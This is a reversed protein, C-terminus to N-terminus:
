VDTGVGFQSKMWRVFHCQCSEESWLLWYSGPGDLMWPFPALLSGQARLDAFLLPSLLAVGIGQMAAQAELEYNPFRTAVFKPKPNAVGALRFWPTWGPDPILPMQLLTKITLPGAVLRPSFMPTRQETTLAAAGYGAWPGVGSRIAVDFPWM